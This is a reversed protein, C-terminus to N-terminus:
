VHVHSELKPLSAILEDFKAIRKEVKLAVREPMTEDVYPSLWARGKRKWGRAILTATTM